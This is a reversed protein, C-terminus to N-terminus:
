RPEETQATRDPPLPAPSAAGDVRGERGNYWRPYHQRVVEGDRRLAHCRDLQFPPTQDNGRANAAGASVEGALAQFVATPVVQALESLHTCGVTAGIRERLSHRFGRALNLGVLGAYVDGHADCHGTYPMWRTQSGAEVIDLQDNVVLRLLMDHMPTGAPRREGGPFTDRTKLDVLTADVEWLGDDRAYVHVDLRRHHKLQRSPAAAPLPM